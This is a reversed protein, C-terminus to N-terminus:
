VIFIQLYSSSHCKVKQKETVTQERIVGSVVIATTSWQSASATSKLQMYRSTSLQKALNMKLALAIAITLLTFKLKKTLHFDSFPLFIM